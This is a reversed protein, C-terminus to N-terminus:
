TPATGRPLMRVSPAAAILASAGVGIVTMALLTAHLGYAASAAGALLNGLPIVGATSLYDFSSVRSLSGTPVHEGLSTEWLTFAGTVCIGALLELAGIGWAGLGSGIFAAQCSAGVLMLSAVRLAFRPRWRLFLVDGLVNGVGFCAVVIAWSRAGDLERDMLVPGIVFISPLVVVHYVSMGTLFAMVWHRSRVETWGERLSTWFHDTTAVPDEEHLAAAVVRPRLPVLLVISVVFTLADFLLAGGPGGAFVILLGAIM